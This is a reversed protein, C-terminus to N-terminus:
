MVSYISVDKMQKRWKVGRHRGAWDWSRVCLYNVIVKHVLYIPTCFIWVNGNLSPKKVRELQSKEGTLINTSLREVYGRQKAM